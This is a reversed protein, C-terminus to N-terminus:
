DKKKVLDFKTRLVLAPGYGAALDVDDLQIFVEEFRTWDGYDMDGCGGV